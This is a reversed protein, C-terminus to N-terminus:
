RKVQEWLENLVQVIADQKEECVLGKMYAHYTDGVTEIERNGRNMEEICFMLGDFIDAMKLKREEDANLQGPHAFGHAQLLEDELRQLEARASRSWAKKAPSPIDGTVCEPWDHVIAAALLRASPLEPAEMLLLFGAVGASHKGVTDTEATYRQHYRRTNLGARMFRIRDALTANDYKDAEPQILRQHHPRIPTNM